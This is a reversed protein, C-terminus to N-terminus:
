GRRRRVVLAHALSGLGYGWLALVAIGFITLRGWFPMFWLQTAVGIAAGTVNWASPRFSPAYLRAEGRPFLAPYFCSALMPYDAVDMCAVHPVHFLCLTAVGLARLRRVRWALIPVLMEIAITGWAAVLRALEPPHSGLDGYIWFTTLGEVAASGSLSRGAEDVRVDVFAANWKHLGAYFYTVCTIVALGELALRDARRPDLRGERAALVLWVIAIVGVSALVHSMHNRIRYPYTLYHAAYVIALVVLWLRPSRADWVQRHPADHAASAGMALVALGLMVALITPVWPSLALHWGPTWWYREWAAPDWPVDEATLQLAHGVFGPVLLLAVLRLRPDLRASM